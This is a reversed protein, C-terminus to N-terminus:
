AVAFLLVTFTDAPPDPDTAATAADEDEVVVDILVAVRVLSARIPADVVDPAPAATVTFAPDPPLALAVSCAAFLPPQLQWHRHGAFEKGM